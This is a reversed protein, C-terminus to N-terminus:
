AIVHYNLSVLMCVKAGQVKCSDHRMEKIVFSGCHLALYKVKDMVIDFIADGRAETDIALGDDERDERSVLAEDM